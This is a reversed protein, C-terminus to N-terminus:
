FYTTLLISGSRSGAFYIWATGTKKFIRSLKHMSDNCLMSIYQKCQLFFLPLVPGLFNINVFLITMCADFYSSYM